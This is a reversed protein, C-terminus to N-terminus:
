QRGLLPSFKDRLARELQPMILDYNEVEIKITSLRFDDINMNKRAALKLSTTPQELKLHIHEWVRGDIHKSKGLYLPIWEALPSSTHKSIRKKKPNPTFKREYDPQVWEDKFWEFWSNFNSHQGNNKIDIKYIGPYKQSDILAADSLSGIVSFDLQRALSDFGSFINKLNQDIESIKNKAFSM